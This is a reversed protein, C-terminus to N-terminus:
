PAYEGVQLHGHHIHVGFDKVEIGAVMAEGPYAGHGLLVMGSQVIPEIQDHGTVDQFMHDIDTGYQPVHHVVEPGPAQEMEDRGIAVLIDPLVAQAMMEAAFAALEQDVVHVIEIASTQSLM